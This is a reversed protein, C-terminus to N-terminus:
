NYKNEPSNDNQISAKKDLNIEKLTQQKLSSFKSLKKVEM